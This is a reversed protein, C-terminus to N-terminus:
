ILVARPIFSPPAYASTPPTFNGTWRAVGKSIRLEDMWGAFYSGTTRTWIALVAAFDPMTSTDTQTTGVQTGDVFAMYGSTGNKVLAVHYWTATAPNWANQIDVIASGGSFVTFRLNNNNIVFNWYNSIDVFQQVFGM